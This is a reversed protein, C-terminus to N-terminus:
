TTVILHREHPAFTVRHHCCEGGVLTARNSDQQVTCAMDPNLKNNPERGEESLNKKPYEPVEGRRLFVCCNWIGIRDPVRPCTEVLELEYSSKLAGHTFLFRGFLCIVFDTQLPKM